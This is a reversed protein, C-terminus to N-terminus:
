KFMAIVSVNILSKDVLFEARHLMRLNTGLLAPIQVIVAHTQRQNYKTQMDINSVSVYRM